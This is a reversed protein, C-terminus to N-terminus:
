NFKGTLRSGPRSQIRNWLIQVHEDHNSQPSSQVKKATLETIFYDYWIPKHLYNKWLREVEEETLKGHIYNHIQNHITNM